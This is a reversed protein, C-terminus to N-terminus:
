KLLDLADYSATSLMNKLRKSCAPHLSKLTKSALPTNIAKIDKLSSRGTFEMVMELQNLTSNGPFM